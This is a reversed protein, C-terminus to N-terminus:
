GGYQARWRNFTAETVELHRLVGALEMTDMREDWWCPMVFVCLVQSM